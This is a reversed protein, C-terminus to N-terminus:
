WSICVRVYMYIYIYIYVCVCVRVCMYIYIYIYIYIYVCVCMLVNMCVFVCVRVMELRALTQLVAAVPGKPPVVRTVSNYVLIDGCEQHCEELATHM